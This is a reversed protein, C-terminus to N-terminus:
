APPSGLVEFWGDAQALWGDRELRVLSMAVELLPRESRLALEGITCPQERCAAYVPLDGPRPTPRRESLITASRTHDLQLAILIDDVDIAPAAGERLLGNAGVAARSAVHGPVAMVPVGREAAATATILSGGRERSEVVVVIEALSAVLRNRLPFHYAVPAVGPPHESLLLGVHGVQQWLQRHESPYVVDLGSAVVAIPLGPHDCEASAELVGRHAYGDIGRALGSVVHVGAEALERGFTRAVHRGAATANRTGVLAVRRGSLLHRDGRSFLVPAPLPDLACALPHAADGLVSVELDLEVCRQWVREPLHRQASARWTHRLTPDDHLIRHILSGAPAPEHGSAIAFAQESSHHRLMAWLRHVSMREFAALAAAYAQPPLAASM